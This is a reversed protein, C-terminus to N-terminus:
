SGTFAPASKDLFAQMAVVADHTRSALVQNRNELAIAAEISGADINVQLGEKTLKLAFPSNAAMERALVRSEELLADADVVRNVLGIRAAEDADILRGTLMLESAHGLGVVRPLLWSVGVDCGSLGLRVFAVNFRASPVAIRVDAALALALGGGAAPGNVAAVVPVPLRKVRSIVAAGHEQMRMFDTVSDEPLRTITALDAGACFGRGAGTIVLVRVTSDQEVRACMLDLEDWLEDHLANLRDPRNLTVLVIGPEVEEVLLHAFTTATLPTIPV